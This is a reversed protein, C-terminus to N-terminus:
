RAKGEAIIHWFGVENVLRRAIHFLGNQMAHEPADEQATNHHTPEHIDGEDPSGTLAHAACFRLGEGKQGQHKALQPMHEVRTAGASQEGAVRKFVM